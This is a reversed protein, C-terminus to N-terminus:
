RGAGRHEAAFGKAVVAIDAAAVTLAYGQESRSLAEEGSACYIGCPLRAAVCASRVADIATELAAEVGDFGGLSLALDGTGVFVFDLGPTVAIEAANAVGEATEIMAGVVTTENAMRYYAAFDHLMPRVGGGSRRGHPPFRAARVLAAADAATEIMPALVGAAGSDLATGITQPLSDGTRVLVPRHGRVVGTAQEISTRDWLGHQADIVVVDLGTAAAVEILAPSGLSFWALKIAEGARLRARLGTEPGDKM